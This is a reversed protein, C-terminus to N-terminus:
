TFSRRPHSRVALRSIAVLLSSRSTTDNKCKSWLMTREAAMVEIRKSLKDRLIRNETKLFEVYRVLEKETARAVLLLLPHLLRAM